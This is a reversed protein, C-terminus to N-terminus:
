VQDIDFSGDLLPNDKKTQGIMQNLSCDEKKKKDPKAKKIPNFYLDHLEHSKKKYEKMNNYSNNKM